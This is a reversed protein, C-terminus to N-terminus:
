SQDAEAGAGSQDAEAGAGSQEAEAGAGSQDALASRLGVLLRDTAGSDQISARVFRSDGLAAGPAVHIASRRLRHALESGDLTPHGFWVFNAESESVTLGLERLSTTLRGREAAVWAAREDMLPGSSRLAELAGTQALENVGLEPGIHELLDRAGPGALAYGCRLGALGWAKSFSRFLILRDHEALLASAAAPSEAQAFEVLAQDLLVLVRDPLEGLLRGLDSATLLEGTPDNPSALAVAATNPNVAALLAEVSYEAVPVARAGARRAMVPILPYTPWPCILERDPGLLALAASGLLSAAGNGVVVQEPALGHLDALRHRLSEQAQAGVYRHLGRRAAYTVANVVYPHPLHPWTTATLDLPELRALAQERRQAARERLRANVERESLGQFQRYYDLLAV